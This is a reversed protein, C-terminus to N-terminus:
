VETRVVNADVEDRGSGYHRHGRLRNRAEAQELVSPVAACREPPACRIRCRHGPRADRQERIPKGRRRTFHQMYVTTKVGHPHLRMDPLVTSTVPPLRPMPNDIARANASCPYLTATVCRVWGTSSNRETRHSTVEVCSTSAAKVDISSCSPGTSIRTELAPM